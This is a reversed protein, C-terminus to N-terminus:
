IRWVNVGGQRDLAAVARDDPRWHLQAVTDAAQGVGLKAMNMRLSLLEKGM